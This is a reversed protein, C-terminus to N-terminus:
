SVYDEAVERLHEASVNNDRCLELLRQVTENYSSIDDVLATQMGNELLEIGYVTIQGCDEAGCKKETLSFIKSEQLETKEVKM